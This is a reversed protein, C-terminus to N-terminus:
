PLGPKRLPPKTAMPASAPRNQGQGRAQSMLGALVQDARDALLSAGAERAVTAAEILTLGAWGAEGSAKALHAMAIQDAVWDVPAALESAALRRRTAAEVGYLAEIRGNACAIECAVRMERAVAGLILERGATLREAERLVMLPAADGRLGRAIQVAAWDLPSHDPTFQEAAAEFMLEAQARAGRDDALTALACLGAACLALARARTLPRQEAPATEVLGGLGRGAQDLLRVDRRLLGAELLLAAQDLRLEDLESAPRGCPDHLAVDLLATADMLAGPDNALRAQRTKLRAHASTLAASAGPARPAPTSGIVVEARALRDLGGKLDYRLLLGEAVAAAARATEDADGAVKIADQAASDGRGLSYEDGTRRAHERWLAAARLWVPFPRPCSVRGADTTQRRAEAQLLDAGVLELWGLDESERAQAFLRRLEKGFEFM